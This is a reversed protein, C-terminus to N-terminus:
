RRLFVDRYLKSWGAFERVYNPRNGLYLKQVPNNAAQKDMDHRASGYGLRGYIRQGEQSMLYDILLMAAHPSPAGRALAVATDTVPV